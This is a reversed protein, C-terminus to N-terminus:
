RRDFVYPGATAGWVQADVADFGRDWSEIRDGTLLIESTAYSAGGLSSSCALGLTGGELTGDQEHWTLEVGCGERESADADDFSAVEDDDCLGVAALPDALEFITTGATGAEADGHLVYLRQRYPQTPTDMSAQEVYLVRGGLEPADVACTILQIEYYSPDDSVQQSSDFEGSLYDALTQMIDFSEVEPPRDGDDIAPCGTFLALPVLVLSAFPLVYKM